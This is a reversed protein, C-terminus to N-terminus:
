QVPRVAFSIDFLTFEPFSYFLDFLHLLLHIGHKLGADHWLSNLIYMEKLCISKNKCMNPM